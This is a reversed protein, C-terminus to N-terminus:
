GGDGVVGLYGRRLLERAMAAVHEAAAGSEAAFRGVVDKAPCGGDFAGLFRLVMPELALDCRFGRAQQVLVRGDEHTAAVVADAARLAVDLWRDGPASLLTQNEFVRQVQEGAQEDGDTLSHSECRVWNSGDRRRAFIMGMTLSDVGAEDVHERWRRLADACGVENDANPGVRSSYWAAIVRDVSSTQLRVVWADVGAGEVWSCPRSEWNGEGAHEWNCIFVGFGGMRLHGPVGRVLAGSFADGVAVAGGGTVAHVPSFVFPANSVVLDFTEGAVPEYLSGRRFEVNTAGNINANLAALRLAHRSVDTAVVRRSHNGARIAHFGQGCGVDLTEGRSIRPIMRSLARANPGVGDASEPEGMSQTVRHRGLLLGDWREFLVDARITGGTTTLVGLRTLVGVDLGCAAADHEPVGGGAILVSAAPDDVPPDGLDIRNFSTHLSAAMKRLAAIVEPQTFAPEHAARPAGNTFPPLETM